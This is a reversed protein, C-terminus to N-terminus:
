DVDRTVGSGTEQEPIVVIACERIDPELAADSVVLVTFLLGAHTHSNAIVVEIASKVNELGMEGVVGIDQVPIVPLTVEFVHRVNGAESHLRSEDAPASADHIQVVIASGIQKKHGPINIGFDCGLKRLVRERSGADYKPV